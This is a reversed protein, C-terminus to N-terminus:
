KSRLTHIQMADYIIQQNETGLNTFLPTNVTKIREWMFNAANKDKTLETIWQRLKSVGTKTDDSNTKLASIAKNLSTLKAMDYASYEIGDNIQVRKRMDPLKGVYSDHVKFFSIGSAKRETKEKAEKCLQEALDMAYHLPFKDKVYAIGACATLKNKLLKETQHEFETLFKKVFPLAMDAQILITLDDGGLIIPRIPLKNWLKNEQNFNSVENFATQAAHKTSTDLNSSFDKLVQKIKNNDNEKQLEKGMNLLLNGLGNGDAHVVAIFSNTGISLDEIQNTAQEKDIFNKAVIKELLTFNDKITDEKKKTAECIAKNHKFSVAVGNSQRDRKTGMFGIEFPLSTKNRQSRLKEELTNFAEALNRNDIKVVAHNITIGPAFEMIKKPFQKVMKRCDEKSLLLKLNGAAEIITYEDLPNPLIEKHLKTCIQEVMESAGIIDVLKNTKFIFNQIGQVSAGYLYNKTNM